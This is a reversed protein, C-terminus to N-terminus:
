ALQFIIYYYFPRESPIHHHWSRSYQRKKHILFLWLVAFYKGDPSFVITNPEWDTNIVEKGRKRTIKGVRIGLNDEGWLMTEGDPGIALTRIQSAWQWADINFLNLATGGKVTKKPQGTFIDWVKIESGTITGGSSVIFGNELDIALDEVGEQHGKFTRIERGSKVSWLKVNQDASGTVMFRGDNSFKMVNIRDTHGMQVVTEVPYDLPSQGLLLTSWLLTAALFFAKPSTM